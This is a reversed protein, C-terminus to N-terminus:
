STNYFVFLFGGYCGIKNIYAIFIRTYLSSSLAIAKFIIEIVFQDFIIFLKQSYLMQYDRRCPFSNPNAFFFVSVQLCCSVIDFVSFLIAIMRQPIRKPIMCLKIAKM